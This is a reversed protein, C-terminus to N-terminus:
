SFIYDSLNPERMMEFADEPLWPYNVVVRGRDVYYGGGELLWVLDEMAEDMRCNYDEFVESKLEFASHGNEVSHVILRAAYRSWQEAMSHISAAARPQGNPGYFIVFNPLHPVTLGLYARPGDQSWLRRITFGDTGVYDVPWLYDSVRFGTALVLVDLPHRRGDAMIAGQKDFRSIPAVELEVHPQGLAKFWGNDVVLRRVAPPYDPISKAMLDEDGNLEATVYRTLFERLLDNRENVQGGRRRWDPNVPHLQHIQMYATADTFRSWHWYYPFHKMLWHTEATVKARYNDLPGIWQPHRQFVTLQGARKALSSMLQVGSSGNGILGVRKEDIDAEYNWASTHFTTGAFDSLGPIQPRDNPTSFLGSASIIYNPEIHEEGLEASRLTLRWRQDETGWEGAIVETGLRLHARLGYKEVIHELYRQNEAQSSCFEPWPYAKEFTYEFLYSPTDVRAEPYDNLQWTGGIKSQRDVVIFPIRLRKMQVAAAIGSIGAGIIVVLLTDVVAPPDKTSWAVNRPFEDLALEERMMAFQTEPLPEGLFVTMLRRLEEDTPPPPLPQGYNRAILDLAKAKVEDAHEDALVLGDYAGGRLPVKVVKMNALDPDCTMQYTAVRLANLRAGEIAAQAAHNNFPAGELADEHPRSSM